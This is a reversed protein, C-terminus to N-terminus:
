RSIARYFTNRTSAHSSVGHRQRAREGTGVSQFYKSAFDGARASASPSHTEQRPASGYFQPLPQTPSIPSAPPCRTDYISDRSPSALPIEESARARARSLSFSLSLSLSLSSRLLVHEIFCVRLNGRELICESYACTHTHTHM